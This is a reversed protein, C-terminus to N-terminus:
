GDRQVRSGPVIDDAGDPWRVWAKTGGDYDQGLLVLTAPEGLATCPESGEPDLGRWVRIFGNGEWEEGVTTADSHGPYIVTQPPLEMLTGMISDRLDAYTSHGPAKVGGVSNKFLTDGTFVVAEGGSFGGPTPRSGARGRGAGAGDEQERDGVLFSLMGATHGPTHLPRVELTGFGLTQGAEIPHMQATTSGADAADEAASEARIMDREAPSILVEIEPWRERLVGVDCVHDFHHHTLLVHTPLLELRNAADILPKMPGGADVFFAPGGNGDAVLYTNSLFQPHMSTEVIMRAM